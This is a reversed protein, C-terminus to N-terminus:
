ITISSSILVMGKPDKLMVINEVKFSYIYPKIHVCMDSKNIFSM